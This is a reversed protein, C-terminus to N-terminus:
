AGLIERLAGADRITQEPDDGATFELIYDRDGADKLIRAYQNWPAIGRALPLREKSEWYFVHANTIYPLVRNLCDLNYALDKYQNPQWYLYLNSHAVAKVLRLAADPTHTMTNGHFEYAVKVGCAQAADCVLRTELVYADFLEPACADTEVSGAWIRVIRVGLALASDLVQAFPVTNQGLRYYSGYSLCALGADCTKEAVQAALATDGPPVHIDGGWEIGDLGARAALDIIQAFDFKRFSISCIGTRM